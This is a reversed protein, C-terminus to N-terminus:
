LIGAMGISVYICVNCCMVGYLIVKGKVLKFRESSAGGLRWIERMGM